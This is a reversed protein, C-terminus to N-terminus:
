VMKTIVIEKFFNIIRIYIASENFVMPEVNPFYLIMRVVWISLFLIFLLYLYKKERIFFFFPVLFFLPHYFFAKKIDLHLLNVYARTMGCTVCPIGFLNFFICISRKFVFNSIFSLIAISFFLEILKKRM